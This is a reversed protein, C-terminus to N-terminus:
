ICTLLMPEDKTIVLTHEYHASKKGDVTVATWGDDLVKVHYSGANVMPEVALVMGEQLRVGKGPPGYHPIQPDEHLNAGVGHGVFDRVVSFGNMEVHAQVAHSIDSLRYGLRAFKLGEYFSQRTVEILKEDEQTIKGVGHTKAADGHYGKYYAGIDLSIIDGEMLVRNSPIGHVVQENVSACITCPFGGYGKFSPEANCKRIHREAIEDLEITTIGPSIKERLLEHVEAVIKGADAMLDIEKPSKIIIM